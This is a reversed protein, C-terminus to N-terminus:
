IKASSAHHSLPLADSAQALPGHNSGWSRQTTDKLEGFYQYIGLFISTPRSTWCFFLGFNKASPLNDELNKFQKNCTGCSTLRFCTRLAAIRLGSGMHSM